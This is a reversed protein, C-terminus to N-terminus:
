SKPFVTAAKRRWNWAHSVIEDLNRYRPDFGLIRCAKHGKAVLIPPDAPHRPLVKLPVKLGTVREVAGVVERVSFGNGVGLNMIESAGGKLLYDLALVHAAALDMVHIYDRVPTGDPTAHDEGLLGFEEIEGRAAMLLLPIVHTEPEHWEGIGADPDSGSANFYRLCVSKIGYARDADKLIREVMLKSAGYPNIPETPHDEDIPVKRAVGYTACSSSFVIAPVGTQRMAEILGLSGGVNNRYYLNPDIVSERVYAFAAMHIVGAPRYRRIVESLHVTDAVDGVVSPGFRVAARNGRSLNDYTVPEQGAEALAKCVHSGIFGAGGTVLVIAM